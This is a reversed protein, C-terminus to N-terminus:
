AKHIKERGTTVGTCANRTDVVLQAHRVIFDYDFTDHATAILVCDQSALFSETLPESELEPVDGRRVQRLRPVHPDDVRTHRMRTRLADRELM